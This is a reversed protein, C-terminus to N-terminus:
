FIQSLQPDNSFVGRFALTAERKGKFGKRKILTFGNQTLVRKLLGTCAYTSFVCNQHCFNEVFYNLFQETWLPHDTKQSFADYAIFHFKKQVQSQLNLEGLIQWNVNINFVREDKLAKNALQIVKYANSDNHNAVIHIIKQYLATAISQETGNVLQDISQNFAHKLEENKEFTLLNVQTQQLLDSNKLIESLINLEIYGLGLGVVLSNIETERHLNQLLYSFPNTYIYVTEAAAGQSNHMPETREDLDSKFRATPSGDATTEIVFDKFIENNSSQDNRQIM